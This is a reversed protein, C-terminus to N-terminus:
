ATSIGQYFGVPLIETHASDQPMRCLVPDVSSNLLTDVIFSRMRQVDALQGLEGGTNAQAVFMLETFIRPNFDGLSVKRGSRIDYFGEHLQAVKAFRLFSEVYGTTVGYELNASMKEIFRLARCQGPYIQDCTIDRGALIAQSLFWVAARDNQSLSAFAPAGLRLIAANGIREEVGGLGASPRQTEKKACGILLASGALLIIFARIRM